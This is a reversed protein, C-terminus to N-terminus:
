AAAERLSINNTKMRGMAKIMGGYVEKTEEELNPFPFQLPKYKLHIKQM